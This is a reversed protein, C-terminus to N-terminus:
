GQTPIEGLDVPSFSVTCPPGAAFRMSVETRAAGARFITSSRTGYQLGPVHVCVGEFGDTDHTGLFLELERDKPVTTLSGMKERIFRERKPAHVSYSRETIVTLGPELVHHVITEGDCVVVHAEDRDAIALHFANEKKPDLAAIEKAADGARDHLLADLVLEGRSRRAPDKAVGFRNTIASFLGRDNTGLWTGGASLDTPCVVRVGNKLTRLSPPAAPRDLREDRNAAILLPAEAFARFFLVLTCM